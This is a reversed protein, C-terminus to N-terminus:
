RTSLSYKACVAGQKLRGPHELMVFVTYDFHRTKEHSNFIGGAWEIHVQEVTGVPRRRTM